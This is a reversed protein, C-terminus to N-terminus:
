RVVAIGGLTLGRVTGVSLFGVSLIGVRVSVGGLVARPGPPVGDGLQQGAHALRAGHRLVETPATAACVVARVRVVAGSVGDRMAARVRDPTEHTVESRATSAARLAIDERPVDPVQVAPSSRSQFSGALSGVRDL